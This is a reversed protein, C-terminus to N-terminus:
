IRREPSGSSETPPLGMGKSTNSKAAFLCSILKWKIPMARNTHNLFQWIFSSNPSNFVSKDSPPWLLSLFSFFLFLSFFLPFARLEPRFPCIKIRLASDGGRHLTHIRQDANNRMISCLIPLATNVQTNLYGSLPFCYKYKSFTQKGLPPKFKFKYNLVM